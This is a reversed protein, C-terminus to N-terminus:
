ELEYEEICTKNIIGETQPCRNNCEGARKEARKKDMHIGKIRRSYQSPSMFYHVVIYIKM